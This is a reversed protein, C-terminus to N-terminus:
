SAIVKKMFENVIVLLFLGKYDRILDSIQNRDMRLIKAFTLEVNTEIFKSLNIFDTIYESKESSSFYASRSSLGAISTIKTTKKNNIKLRELQELKNMLDDINPYQENINERIKRLLKFKNTLEKILEVYIDYHTYFYEIVDNKDINYTNVYYRAVPIDSDKIKKDIRSHQLLDNLYTHIETRVTDDHSIQMQRDSTVTGHGGKKVKNLFTRKSVYKSGVKIREKGDIIFIKKRRNKGNIDTYSLYAM